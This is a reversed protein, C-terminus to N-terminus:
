RNVCPCHYLPHVHPLGRPFGHKEMLLLIEHATCPKLHPIMVIFEILRTTHRPWILRLMLKNLHPWEYFEADYLCLYPTVKSLSPPDCLLSYTVRPFKSAYLHAQQSLSQSILTYNGKTGQPNNQYYLPVRRIFYFVM